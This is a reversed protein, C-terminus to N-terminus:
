VDQCAPDGAATTGFRQGYSFSLTAGTAGGNVTTNLSTFDANAINITTILSTGAGGPRGGGSAAGHYIQMQVSGDALKTAIVSKAFMEPM